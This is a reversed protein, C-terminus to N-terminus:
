VTQYNDFMDFTKKLAVMGQEQDFISDKAFVPHYVYM